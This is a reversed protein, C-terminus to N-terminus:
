TERNRVIKYSTSVEAGSRKIMISASCYRQMSLRIAARLISEDVDGYVVYRMHVNTFVRPPEPAREAEATVELKSFQQGNKRLIEAVDFATCAATGMLVLEMPSPGLGDGGDIVVARGRADGVFTLGELLRVRAKM